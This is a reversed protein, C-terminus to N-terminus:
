PMRGQSARSGLSKPGAGAEIPTDESRKKTFLLIMVPVFYVALAIRSDVHGQWLMVFSGLISAGLIPMPWWQRYGLKQLLVGESGLTLIGLCILGVWGGLVAWPHGAATRHQALYSIAVDAYKYCITSIIFLGIRRKM